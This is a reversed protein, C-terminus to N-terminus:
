REKRHKLWFEVSRYEVESNALESSADLLLLYDLYGNSQHALEGPTPTAQAISEVMFSESELFDRSLLVSLFILIIVFLSFSVM